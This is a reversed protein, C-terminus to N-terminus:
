RYPGVVAPEAGEFALAHAIGIGERIREADPEFGLFFVTVVSREAVIVEPGATLVRARMDDDLRALVLEPRECEVDYREGFVGDGVRLPETDVLPRPRVDRRGDDDLIVYEDYTVTRRPCRIRTFLGRGRRRRALGGLFGDIEVTEGSLGVRISVGGGAHVSIPSSVVRGGLHDALRRWEDDLGLGRRSFVGLARLVAVRRDHRCQDFSRSGSDADVFRWAQSRGNEILYHYERSASIGARVGDDLWLRAFPADNTKVAFVDDFAIDGTDVTFSERFPYSDSESIALRLGDTGPADATLWVVTGTIGVQMRCDDVLVSVLSDRVENLERGGVAEIASAWSQLRDTMAIRLQLVSSARDAVSTHGGYWASWRTCPM